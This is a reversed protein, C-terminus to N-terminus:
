THEKLIKNLEAKILRATNGRWASANALFRLVIDDGPETIYKDTVQNLQSMAKIYPVAPAYPTKWDNRIDRSILHLSRHNIPMTNELSSSTAMAKFNKLWVLQAYDRLSKV